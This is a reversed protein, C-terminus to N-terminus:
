ESVTITGTMYPHISCHYPHVGAEDLTVSFTGEGVISSEFDGENAEVHHLLGGDDFHWTVTEGPAVSVDGPTFQLDRVGVEVAPRDACGIAAGGGLVVSALALTRM